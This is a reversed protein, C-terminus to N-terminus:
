KGILKRETNLNMTLTRFLIEYPAGMGNRITVFGTGNGLAKPAVLSAAINDWAAIKSRM